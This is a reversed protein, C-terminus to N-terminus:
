KRLNTEFLKLIRKYEDTWSSAQVFTHDEVPYFAVEWNEKGLEILKQSLRVTDQYHVNTDVVGHCILLAGSLGAAHYIPSSQRYAEQDKQPLNLINATYSHNYHAWDTVPRLAAGAAFVGPRTFMAMLTIFGGYSGGYLGIKKPNVGHEKVLWAAADVQDDLDKGGMHRYVATRWDRGYGASARYDLDIVVYGRDMLLHHFMYERAYSPWWKHVNQTYGAGHVFIVAPGGPKWNKPKFLRGPVQAGDRAPVRVLPADLWPYSSFEGAPSTTVRKMPAGPRNDMLYLEPPKNAYSHIVALMSEDPSPTAENNGAEPSVKTRPGGAVPVTYVHREHPSVESSNLWFKTKDKSLAVSQVEWQGSTLQRNEGTEADATYLHAWGDKESVFYLTRNDPLWGLTSSGPGGVWADDHLQHVAKMKGDAQNVVFVYRDKNDTARGLLALRSGDESWQPNSFAIQRDVDKDGSKEKIGPTLWTVDGTSTKVMAMRGRAQTDGAFGRSNITETYASETVYNPVVANKADAAQDMVSVLVYEESPALLLGGVSQRAALNMPKRTIEKKRRAEDEERKKARRDIIDLLSREEKKLAEQSESGRREASQADSQVPPAGGGGGRGGFGFGMGGGGGGSGGTSAAAPAQAAPRIDTLQELTGDELSLTYLNGSRTFAVRRGDRTFRPNAEADSTKTVQRRKGTAQDLIFLDGRDAFLLRTRDKNESGGSPPAMRAEDESLKTLGSGDRGVVWTDYEKEPADSAQKWQFYVRSGDGSWRVARPEYGYLAPGQMIWDVTLERRAPPQAGPLPLAM